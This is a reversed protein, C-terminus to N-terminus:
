CCINAWCIFFGEGIYNRILGSYEVLLKRLEWFFRYKSLKFCRTGRMTLLSHVIVHPRVLRDPLSSFRWLLKYTSVSKDRGPIKISQFQLNVGEGLSTTPSLGMYFWLHLHSCLVTFYASEPKPPLHEPVPPRRLSSGAKTYHQVEKRMVKAVPPTGWAPERCVVSSSNTPHCWQSSSCSNSCVGPTPSPCPPRAHQPGHPQLSDSM